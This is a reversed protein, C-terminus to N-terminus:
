RGKSKYGALFTGPCATSQGPAERHGIVQKGALGWKKLAKRLGRKQASTWTHGTTGHVSIGVRGTNFNLTHAGVWEIGRLRVITGDRTVGVNYGLAAWGQGKHARDYARWLAFAEDDGDDDLPGATYHGVSGLISGQRTLPRVATRDFGLDVVKPSARNRLRRAARKIRKALREIKPELKAIRDKVGRRRRMLADLQEGIEKRRAESKSPDERAQRKRAADEDIKELEVVKEALAEELGDREERLHRLTAKKM